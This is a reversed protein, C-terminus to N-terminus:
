DAEAGAAKRHPKVEEYWAQIGLVVGYALFGLVSAVPYPHQVGHHALLRLAVAGVACAACLQAAWWFLGSKWGSLVRKVVRM